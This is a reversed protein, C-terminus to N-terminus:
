IDDELELIQEQLRRKRKNVKNILQERKEPTLSDDEQFMRKYDEQEKLARQLKVFNDSERAQRQDLLTKAQGILDKVAETTARVENKIDQTDKIAKQNEPSTSNAQQNDPSSSSLLTGSESRIAIPAGAAMSSLLFDQGQQQDLWYVWTLWTDGPSPCYNHFDTIERGGGGTDKNWRRMAVSYRPKLYKSYTGELWPGDRSQQVVSESNPDIDYLNVGDSQVMTDLVERPPTPVKITPDNFKLALEEFLAKDPNNAQDLKQRSKKKSFYLTVAGRFEQLGM